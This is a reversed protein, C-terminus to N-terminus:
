FPLSLGVQHLVRAGSAIFGKGVMAVLDGAFLGENNSKGEMIIRNSKM